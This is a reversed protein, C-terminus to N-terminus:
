CCKPKPTPFLNARSLLEGRRSYVLESQLRNVARSVGIRFFESENHNGIRYGSTRSGVGFAGDARKPWLTIDFGGNWCIINDVSKVVLTKVLAFIRIIVAIGNKDIVKEGGPRRLAAATRTLWAEAVVWGLSATLGPSNWQAANVRSPHQGHHRRLRCSFARACALSKCLSAEVRRQLATDGNGAVM